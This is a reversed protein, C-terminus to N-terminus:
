KAAGLKGSLYSRLEDRTTSKLIYGEPKLEMVRSVAEKTGIGTLFVVPINATMPEHKLMQLVQPGDVVPMEYDLLILDVPDNEKVKLLFTIAQMGATVIDVRYIDKIWERVMKAYSPDDDVILIRKKVVTAVEGDIMKEVLESFKEMDLPRNVWPFAHLEPLMELLDNHYKVEGLLIMPKGLESVVGAIMSLMRAKVHDEMIDGPLYTLFLSANGASRALEEFRESIVVVDYGQSKFKNEIGKVVVSYQYAIIAIQKPLTSM